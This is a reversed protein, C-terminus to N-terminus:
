VKSRRPEDSVVGLHKISCGLANKLHDSVIKRHCVKPDREYCMLCVLKSETIKEIEALAERAEESNMVAGFISAFQDYKGARAAERGEKPDGLARLHIYDIGVERVAESLASKSFGKRRSQARERIDVLVEVGSRQLTALFDEPSAGEYGITSIM